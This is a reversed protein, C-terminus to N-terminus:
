PGIKCINTCKYNIEYNLYAKSCLIAWDKCIYNLEYLLGNEFQTLEAMCRISKKTMKERGTGTTTNLGIM